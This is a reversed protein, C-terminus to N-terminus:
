LDEPDVADFINYVAEEDEEVPEKRVTEQTGDIEEKAAVLRTVLEDPIVRGQSPVTLINGILVGEESEVRELAFTVGAKSVYPLNSIPSYRSIPNLWAVTVAKIDKAIKAYWEKQTPFKPLQVVVFEMVREDWKGQGTSQFGWGVLSLTPLTSMVGHYNSATGFSYVMPVTKWKSLKSLNNGIARKVQVDEAFPCYGYIPGYVVYDREEFHPPILSHSQKDYDVVVGKSSATPLSGVHHFIIVAGSDPSDVIYDHYRVNLNMKDTDKSLLIRFYCQVRVEQGDHTVSFLPSSSDMIRKKWLNLSSVLMTIDGVSDVRINVAKNQAWVGLVASLVFQMRKGFEDTLGSYERMGALIATPSNNSGQVERARGVIQVVSQITGDFEPYCARIGVGGKYWYCGPFDGYKKAMVESPKRQEFCEPSIMRKGEENMRYAWGKETKKFTNLAKCVIVTNLADYSDKSLRGLAERVFCLMEEGTVASKATLPLGVWIKDESLISRVRSAVTMLGPINLESSKYVKAFAEVNLRIKWESSAVEVLQACFATVAVLNGFKDGEGFRAPIPANSREMKEGSLKYYHVKQPTYTFSGGQTVLFADPRSNMSNKATSSSYVEFALAADVEDFGGKEKVLADYHKPWKKSADGNWVAFYRLDKRDMAQFEERTWRSAQGSGLIQDINAM